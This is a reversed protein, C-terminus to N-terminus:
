SGEMNLKRMANDFEETAKRLRTRIDKFEKALKAACADCFLRIGCEKGCSCKM